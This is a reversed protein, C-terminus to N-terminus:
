KKIINLVKFHINKSIKRTEIIEVKEGIQLPKDTKVLFKKHVKKSKLYIPHKILREIQVSVLGENILKVVKGSLINSM